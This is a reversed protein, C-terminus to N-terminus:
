EINHKTRRSYEPNHRLGVTASSIYDKKVEKGMEIGDRYTLIM